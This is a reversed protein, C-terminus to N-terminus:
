RPQHPSCVYLSTEFNLWTFISCNWRRRQSKRLFGLVSYLPALLNGIKKTGPSQRGPPQDESSVEGVKFLVNIGNGGASRCRQMTNILLLLLCQISRKGMKYVATLGACYTSDSQTRVVRPPRPIAHLNQDVSSCGHTQSIFGDHISGAQVVLTGTAHPGVQTRLVLVTRVRPVEYTLANYATGTRLM